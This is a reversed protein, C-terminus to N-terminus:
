ESKAGVLEASTTIDEDEEAEAERLAANTAKIATANFLPYFAKNWKIRETMATLISSRKEDLAHKKKRFRKTRRQERTDPLDTTNHVPAPFPDVGMERLAQRQRKAQKESM